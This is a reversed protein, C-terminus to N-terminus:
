NMRVAFSVYFSLLSSGLDLALQLAQSQRMRMSTVAGNQAWEIMALVVLAQVVEIAVQSGGDRGAQLSMNEVRELAM